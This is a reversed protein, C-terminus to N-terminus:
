FSFLFLLLAGEAWAGISAAGVAVALMLFHIDLEGKPLGEKADQFAEWGGAIMAGAYFIVPVWGPVAAFFSLAFGTAAFVGCIVALAVLFRWEEEPEEEAEEPWEMERWRWLMPATLCTERELSFAGAEGPKLSIGPVERKLTKGEQIRRITEALRVQLLVLDVEGFTAIQVMRQDPDVRLAEVSANQHLFTALGAAWDPATRDLKEITM